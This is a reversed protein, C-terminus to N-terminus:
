VYASFTSSTQVSRALVGHKNAGVAVVGNSLVTAMVNSAAAATTAQLVHMFHNDLVAQDESLCQTEDLDLENNDSGDKEDGDCQTVYSGPLSL